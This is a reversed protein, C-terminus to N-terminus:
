ESVAGSVVHIGNPSFLVSLVRGFRGQLPETIPVGSVADWIRITTDLSGSVIRTGAPSFSVSTVGGSHGTFGQRIGPWQESTGAEVSLTNRFEARMRQLVASKSPSCPLASLYIHSVSQSIPYGFANLFNTAESIM